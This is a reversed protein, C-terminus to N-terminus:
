CLTSTQVPASDTEFWARYAHGFSPTSDDITNLAPHRRQSAHSSRTTDPTQGASNGKPAEGGTAPGRSRTTAAHSGTMPPAAHHPGSESSVLDGTPSTFALPQHGPFSALDSLVVMSPRGHACQFPLTCKSLQELLSQCQSTTLEDNFMIASRCARSNVLNLLRSPVKSTIFAPQQDTIPTRSVSKRRKSDHVSSPRSKVRGVYDESWIEERLLEIILKPDLRCREAIAQPLATVRVECQVCSPAAVDALNDVGVDAVVEYVINWRLFHLKLTELMRAETAAVEFRLSSALVVPEDQQVAKLLDEVKCREDAAHQDILVLKVNSDACRKTEPVVALIFKNDLQRLVKAQPLANKSIRPVELQAVAAQHRGQCHGAAEWFVDLQRRRPLAQERLSEGSENFRATSRIPQYENTPWFTSYRGVNEVVQQLPLARDKESRGRPPTHIGGYQSTCPRMSAGTNPLSADSVVMGTRPDIRLARGTRPDAWAIAAESGSTIESPVASVDSLEDAVVPGDSKPRPLASENRHELLVSQSPSQIKQFPLGTLINDMVSARSSKVRSWHRFNQRSQSTNRKGLDPQTTDQVKLPDDSHYEGRVRRFCFGHSTLFEKILTELLSAIRSMLKPNQDHAGVALMLGDAIERDTSVWIVFMPWRDVSKSQDQRPRCTLHKSDQPTGSTDGSAHALAGFTSNDFFANILQFLEPHTQKTLPRHNIAIFQVLKHPMPELSVVAHIHVGDLTITSRRWDTSYARHVYGAHNLVALVSETSRPEDAPTMTVPQASALKHHFNCTPSSHQVHLEFAQPFALILGTLLLKLRDFEKRVESDDAFRDALHKRRVPLRSFLNHVKVRTGRKIESLHSEEETHGLRGSDDLWLINANQEGATRSTISLLSVGALAALYRGHRGYTHCQRGAKSTCYVRALRGDKSFEKAPIGHGNDLVSCYGTAYNLVARISSAQADLANKVLEVVVDTLSLIQVASQIRAQSINDLPYIRNDILDM